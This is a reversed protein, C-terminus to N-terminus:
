PSAGLADLRGAPWARPARMGPTHFRRAVCGAPICRRGFAVTITFRAVLGAQLDLSDSRPQKGM